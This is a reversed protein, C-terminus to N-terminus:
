TDLMFFSSKKDLVFYIGSIWDETYTIAVPKTFQIGHCLTEIATHKLYEVSCM